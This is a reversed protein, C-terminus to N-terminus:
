LSRDGSLSSALIAFGVSRGRRRRSSGGQPCGPVSLPAASRGPHGRADVPGVLPPPTTVLGAHHCPRAAASPSARRHGTRAERARMRSELSTGAADCGRAAGRAAAASRLRDWPRGKSFTPSGCQPPVGLPQRSRERPSRAPTSLHRLGPGEARTPGVETTHLRKNAVVPLSTLSLLSRRLSTVM